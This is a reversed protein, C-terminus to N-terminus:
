FREALDAGSSGLMSIYSFTSETLGRHVGFNEGRDCSPFGSRRHPDARDVSGRTSAKLMDKVSLRGRTTVVSEISQATIV